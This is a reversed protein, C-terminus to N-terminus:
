LARRRRIDDMELSRQVRQTLAMEVADATFACLSLADRRQALVDNRVDVDLFILAVAIRSQCKENTAIQRHHGFVAGNQTVILIASVLLSQESSVFHQAASIAIVSSRFTTTQRVDSLSASQPPM